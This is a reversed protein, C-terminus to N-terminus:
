VKHATSIISNIFKKDIIHICKRIFIKLFPAKSSCTRYLFM